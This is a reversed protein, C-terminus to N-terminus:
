TRGEDIAERISVGMPVMNSVLFSVPNEQADNTYPVLRAAPTGRVTIVVSHGSRAQEVLSSLHTKAEFLGVYKM